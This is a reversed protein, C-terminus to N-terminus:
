TSVNQKLNHKEVFSFLTGNEVMNLTARQKNVKM